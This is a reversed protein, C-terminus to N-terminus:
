KGNKEKELRELEAKATLYALGDPSEYFKRLTGEIILKLHTLTPPLLGEPLPSQDM